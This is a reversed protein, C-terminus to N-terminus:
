IQLQVFLFFVQDCVSIANLPEGMKANLVGSRIKLIVSLIVDNLSDHDVVISLTLRNLSVKFTKDAFCNPFLSTM